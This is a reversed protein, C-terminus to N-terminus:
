REQIILFLNATIEDALLKGKSTLFLINNKLELLGQRQYKNILANQHKLFDIDYEKKIKGIDCGWKTRLSTMLYENIKQEFSLIEKEFPVVGKKLSNLYKINNPINYQRSDGDYSHASPGVGLYKEKKWYSSNHKSHFGELAFNSIEYQEFHNNELFDLLIEFQSAAYEEDVEKIKNNKLLNGFVTKEEITLCYASIHRVGLTIAEQLDTEWLNHSDSPIAYILDISINDIGKNQALKVSNRAESANHVRNLYKLHIDQFSQIGISLRNVGYKAFLDIKTANLDDPNAELTIEIYPNLQFYKNIQNFIKDLNKESLLSPTGGGFYVTTIENSGLYDKQFEIEKCIADIIEDKKQLNTSFHFDCYYCAQKCFPIHLYLGPM